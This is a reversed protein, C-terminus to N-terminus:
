KYPRLDNGVIKKRYRKDMRYIELHRLNSPIRGYFCPGDISLHTVSNPICDELSRNFSEGFRLHTVSNPICDKVSQNFSQGFRLHTVSNLIWNKILQNFYGDFRLHTVSKPIKHNIPRVFYPVSTYPSGQTHIEKDPCLELYTVTSPIDIDVVLSYIVCGMFCHISVKKVNKPFQNYVYNISISEFNDYYPLKHIKNEDIQDVYVLKYKFCNTTTTIATLNIKERDNLHKCMQSFIDYDDM